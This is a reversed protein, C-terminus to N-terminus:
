FVPSNAKVFLRINNLPVRKTEASLYTLIGYVSIALILFIKQQILTEQPM